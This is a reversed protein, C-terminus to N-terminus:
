LKTSFTLNLFLLWPLFVSIILLLGCEILINRNISSIANQTRGRLLHRIQQEDLNTREIEDSTYQKWLEKFEQLEM